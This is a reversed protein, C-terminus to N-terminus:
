GGQRQGAQGQLRTRHRERYDAFDPVNFPTRDRGPQDSWIWFLREPEEFPLQRLLVGHVASFIAANGGIALALTAIAGGTFLPTRQLSRVGYRLDSALSSLWDKLM